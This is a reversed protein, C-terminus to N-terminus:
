KLSIAKTLIRKENDQLSYPDYINFHTENTTALASEVAFEFCAEYKAKIPISSRHGLSESPHRDQMLLRAFTM